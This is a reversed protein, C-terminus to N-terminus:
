TIERYSPCYALSVYQQGIGWWDSFSSSYDKAQYQTDTLKELENIACGISSATLSLEHVSEFLEVLNRLSLVTDNILSLRQDFNSIYINSTNLSVKDCIARIEEEINKPLPILNPANASLRLDITYPAFSHWAKLIRLNQHEMMKPQSKYWAWETFFSPSSSVYKMDPYKQVVLKLLDHIGFSWNSPRPQIINDLVWDDLSRSTNELSLFDTEFIAQGVELQQDEDLEALAHWWHMRILEPLASITDATSVCLFGWEKLPLSLVKSFFSSPNSQASCGECIVIDFKKDPTYNYINSYVLKTKCDFFDSDVKRILENYSPLAGDVLTLSGLGLQSIVKANDGTGPGLELVDSNAFSLPHLGLCRYLSIRRLRHLLSDVQRVPISEKYNYFDIYSKSDDSVNM